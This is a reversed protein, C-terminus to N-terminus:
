EEQAQADGIPTELLTQARQTEGILYLYGLLSELATAYKYDAVSANKAVTNVHANRAHRFVDREEESLTPLIARMIRAQAQANVMACSARHLENVKGGFGDTLKARVYLTHVADGLHALVLPDARNAVLKEVPSPNCPFYQKM